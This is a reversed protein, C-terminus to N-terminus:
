LGKKRDEKCLFMKYWLPLARKGIKLHFKLTVFENIITTHDFFYIKKSHNKYNQLFRYTFFEYIKEANISNNNLLRQLRKIKSQEIDSPYSYRLEQSIKSLIVLQSVIIGVIM